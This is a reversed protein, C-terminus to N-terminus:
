GERNTIALFAAAADTLARLDLDTPRENHACRSGAAFALRVNHALPQCTLDRRGLESLLRSIRSWTLGNQRGLQVARTEIASRALCGCLTLDIADGDALLRAREILSDPPIIIPASTAGGIASLSM